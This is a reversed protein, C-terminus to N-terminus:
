TSLQFDFVKFFLVFCFFPFCRLFSVQNRSRSSEGTRAVITTEKRSVPNGLFQSQTRPSGRTQCFKMSVPPIENVRM